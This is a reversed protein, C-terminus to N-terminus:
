QWLFVTSEALLRFLRPFWRDARAPRLPNAHIPCMTKREIQAHQAGRPRTAGKSVGLRAGRGFGGERVLPASVLM